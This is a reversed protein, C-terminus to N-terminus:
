RSGSRRARVTRSGAAPDIIEPDIVHGPEVKSAPDVYERRSCSSSRQIVARKRWEVITYACLPKTLLEHSLMDPMGNRM